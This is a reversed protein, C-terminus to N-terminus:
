ERHQPDWIQRPVSALLTERDEFGRRCVDRLPCGDGFGHCATYNDPFYKGHPEGTNVCGAADDAAKAWREAERLKAEIQGLWEDRTNAAYRLPTRAWRSFGVGIQHAELLTGACNWEPHTMALGLDYTKIQISPNWSNWFMDGIDSGTTKCELPWTEDDWKVIRDINGCLWYDEGTCAQFPLKWQWFLETAPRDLDREETRGPLTLTEIEGGEGRALDDAYWALTRMLTYVNKKKDTSRWPQWTGDVERWGSQSLAAVMAANLCEEAGQGAWRNNHLMELGSHLAKGFVLHRSAGGKGVGQIMQRLYKQPCTFMTTLSTADQVLRLGPLVSSFLPMKEIM